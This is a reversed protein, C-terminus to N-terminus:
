PKVFILGHHEFTKFLAQVANFRHSFTNKEELSTESLTLTRGEPIFISDYGFGQEGRAELAISGLLSASAHLMIGEIVLALTCVMRASRDPSDHLEQLVRAINAQDPSEGPKPKAYRRSRVGPQGKLATIEIGSDDALSPYHSAHNAVRAKSVANDLYTDHVEVQALKASNRIFRHAAILELPPRAGFLASLEEFKHRNESAFVIVSSVRM